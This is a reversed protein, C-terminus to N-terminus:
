NRVKPAKISIHTGDIAGIVDPLPGIQSFKCKVAHMENRTPWVIYSEALDNIVKIVRRFSDHLSSKALDFKQGM